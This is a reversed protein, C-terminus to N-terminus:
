TPCKSKQGVWLGDYVVGGWHEVFHGYINPSITGQPEDLLIEIRSDRHARSCSEVISTAQSLGRSFDGLCNERIRASEERLVEFEPSRVHCRSGPKDFRAM